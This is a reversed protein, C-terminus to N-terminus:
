SQHLKYIYRSESKFLDNLSVTGTILSSLCHRRCTEYFTYHESDGIKGYSRRSRASRAEGPHGDQILILDRWPAPERRRLPRKTNHPPQPSLFLSRAPCSLFPFFLLSTGAKERKGDEGARKRIKGIIAIKIPIGLPLRHPPSLPPPLPPPTQVAIFGSATGETCTVLIAVQVPSCEIKLIECFISSHSCDVEM